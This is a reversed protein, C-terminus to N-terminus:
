PIITVPSRLFFKSWPFLYPVCHCTWMVARCFQRLVSPAQRRTLSIEFFCGSLHFMPIATNCWRMARTRTILDLGKWPPHEAYGLRSRDGCWESDQSSVMSLAIEASAKPDCHPASAFLLDAEGCSRWSLCIDDGAWSLTAKEEGQNNEWLFIFLHLQPLVPTGANVGVLTLSM